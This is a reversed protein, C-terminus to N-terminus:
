YDLEDMMSIFLQSALEELNNCETDEMAMTSLKRFYNPPIHLVLTALQEM